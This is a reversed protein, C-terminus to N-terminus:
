TTLDIFKLLKETCQGRFNDLLILAHYDPSLKLDKRKQDLYPLLINVIYQQNIIENAWNNETFTIDWDSPFQFQPLCGKAKGQYILQPPLFEGSM